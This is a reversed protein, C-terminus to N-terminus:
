YFGKSFAKQIKEMSVSAKLLEETFTESIKRYVEQMLEQPTNHKSIDVAHEIIKGNIKVVFLCKYGRDLVNESVEFAVIELLTNNIEIRSLLKNEAAKEMEKLLKVSDDTPARKETVTSNSTVHSTHTHYHRDDSFWGM